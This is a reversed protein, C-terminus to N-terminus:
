VDIQYKSMNQMSQRMFKIATFYSTIKLSLCLAKKGLVKLFFTWFPGAVM